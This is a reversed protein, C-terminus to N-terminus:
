NLRQRMPLLCFQKLEQFRLMLWSIVFFGKSFLTLTDVCLKGSINLFLFSIKILTTFNTDNGLATEKYTLIIIFFLKKELWHRNNM